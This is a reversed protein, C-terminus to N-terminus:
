RGCLSRRDAGLEGQGQHLYVSREWLTGDEQHAVQILHVDAGLAKGACPWAGELDQLIVALDGGDAAVTSVGNVM